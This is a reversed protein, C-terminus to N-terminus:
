TLLDSFDPLGTCRCSVDQGPSNREGTKQNTIPPDDYRFVQGDLRAHDPRVKEDKSTSWKYKEIGIDRHRLETIAGNMKLVQDRAILNAQNETADTQTVIADRIQDVGAGKAVQVRVIHEVRDVHRDSLSRILAVNNRAFTDIQDRVRTDSFALNLGLVRATSRRLEEATRVSVDSAVANAARQVEADTLYRGVAVRLDGFAKIILDSVPSDRRMPSVAVIAPLWRALSENTERITPSMAARLARAYSVILASPPPSATGFQSRAKRKPRTAAAAHVLAARRALAHQNV